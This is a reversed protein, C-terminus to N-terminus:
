ICEKALFHEPIFKQGEPFDVIYVGEYFSRVRGPGTIEKMSEDYGPWSDKDISGHLIYVRDGPIFRAGTSKELLHLTQNSYDDEQCNLIGDEFTRVVSFEPNSALVYGERPSSYMGIFVRDGYQFPGAEKFCVWVTIQRMIEEKVDEPLEQGKLLRARNEPRHLINYIGYRDLNLDIFVNSTDM